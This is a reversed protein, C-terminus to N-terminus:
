GTNLWGKRALKSPGWAWQDLKIRQARDGEIRREAWMFIETYVTQPCAWGCWVRGLLSTIFFLSFGLGTIGFFMLWTDQFALTFGFLHFRREAIDLFVAPHGGVPIWPLLLYVVILVWASWRRATTWRGRTDAPHLFLRSGDERITTVFDRNPRPTAPPQMISLTSISPALRPGGM